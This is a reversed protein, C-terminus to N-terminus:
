NGGLSLMLKVLGGPRYDGHAAPHGSRHVGGHNRQRAFVWASGSSVCVGALDCQILLTQGDFGPFSVNLTNALQREPEDWAGNRLAKPWVAAIGEWLRDRLAAQRTQEAAIAREALEAATIMGVIAAVNETGPRRDNEQAGGFGIPDISIGSRLWLAGVGKPGYFKHAALSLADPGDPIDVRVPEKGFSQVMDSHFPIGHERCIAAIEAVPQVTGTENNASHISVLATQPTLALRLAEPDVRGRGDVPLRTVRFGEHKALFDAAHLVAHHETQCTILHRQSGRAARNRALGLVALNDAETGGSTFLIENPRAGLLRAMRDRADDVAARAARGAAHISSPNGFAGSESLFPLMAELAEPALPTTANHDLYITSLSPM